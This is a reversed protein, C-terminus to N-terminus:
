SIAPLFVPLMESEGVQIRRASRYRPCLSAAGGWGVLLRICGWLSEQALVGDSRRRLGAEKDQKLTM